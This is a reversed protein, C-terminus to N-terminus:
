FPDVRFWVLAAGVTARRTPQQLSCKNRAAGGELDTHLTSSHGQTHKQAARQTHTHTHAQTLKHIYMVGGMIVGRGSKKVEILNNAM